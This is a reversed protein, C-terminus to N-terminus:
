KAHHEREHCLRCVPIVDFRHDPAYGSVHHYHEAQADECIVCVYTSASKMRGAQVANNVANVAAVRDKHKASYAAMYRNYETRNTARRNAEHEAYRERNARKYEGECAKCWSRAQGADRGSKRIGFHSISKNQKCSPCVKVSSADLTHNPM